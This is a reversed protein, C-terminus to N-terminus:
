IVGMFHFIVLVAATAFAPVIFELIDLYDKDNEWKSQRIEYVIYAGALTPPLAPSVLTSLPAIIGAVIHIPHRIPYPELGLAKSRARSVAQPIYYGALGAIAVVIAWLLKSYQPMTVSTVIFIVTLCVIATITIVTGKM